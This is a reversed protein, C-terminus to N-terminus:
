GQCSSLNVNTAEWASAHISVRNEPGGYSGGVDGGVRLRPNFSSRVALHPDAAYTAEWASAHISVLTHTRKLSEFGTAEWASAHISVVASSSASLPM